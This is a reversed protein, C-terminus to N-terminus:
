EIEQVSVQNVSIRNAKNKPVGVKIKLPNGGTSIIFEDGPPINDTAM